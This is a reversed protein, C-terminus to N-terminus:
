KINLLSAGKPTQPGLERLKYTFVLLFYRQVINTRTDQIYMDTIIHQINNNENLLDFASLRIDGLHNKFVKKGISMNWLAYNQNYGAPLGSYATYSIATNFVIGKWLILNLSAASLENFYTTTLQHNISNTNSVVSANSSVIFDVQESINSSLSVGLKGTRSNQYNVENDIMAPTRGAGAGANLKLNCKIFSLPMGYNINANLNGAGSINEPMTLQSGKPLLIHGSTVFTDNQAIISNSAISQLTYSGTLGASFNNKAGKNMGNYRLALNHMYPQKLSPNGTYLHLPNSNNVVNQLQGVSPAQTSTNYICDLNKTKSFKYRLSAAPLANEYRHNLVSSTPLTQENRLETLQYNLGLSFESKGAHLLYSGGAKHAINKSAFSNSYLSDPLSYSNTIYSYDGTEKDSRQPLYSLNYEAKLLGNEGAPETYTVNGALNWTNQTQTSQQNLTDSLSPSTYYINQAQHLSGGDSNNNSAKLDISITRRKKSFKHRLLIHNNSNYGTNNRANSNITQNIPLTGEGTNGQLQTNSNNKQILFQPEWIISNMSDTAFTLRLNFRHNYNQNASPSTEHYVQGSDMPLVYTKQTQRELKNSTENFFYSASVDTKPFADKAAKGWKDTYNVGAANTATIGSGGSSGTPNQETFSQENINNSQGTLTVRRDGAFENLTTGAGYKGDDSAGNGATTGGGGYVKGFVGNRKDPKTIINITKSTNGESFGTFQEQDSKENYVQVKAIIDAPLNKLSAFPDTGFFPKGDVLVKVVNEGQATVANGSIDLSPMKKVLDAADADPNVKYAGSNFELTDDKQVMALVKEVIRVEDLMHVAPALQIRGININTNSVQPSDTYDDYGHASIILHHLGPALQILFRGGTDTVAKNKRAYGKDTEIEAGAVPRNKEDIVVGSVSYTQSLTKLCSFVLIVFLFSKM